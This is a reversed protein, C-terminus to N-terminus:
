NQKTLKTEKIKKIFKIKKIEDQKNVQKERWAVVNHLFSQTEMVHKRSVNKVSYM